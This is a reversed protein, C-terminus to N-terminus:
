LTSYKHVACCCLVIEFLSFSLSFLLYSLTRKTNGSYPTRLPGIVILLIFHYAIFEFSILSLRLSLIPLTALCRVSFVTFIKYKSYQIYITCIFICDFPQLTSFQTSPHLLIHAADSTEFRFIINFFIVFVVFLLFFM